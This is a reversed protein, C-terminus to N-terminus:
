GSSSNVLCKTGIEEYVVECISGVGLLRDLKKFNNKLTQARTHTPLKLMDMCHLKRISHINNQLSYLAVEM